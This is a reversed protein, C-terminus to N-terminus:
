PAGSQAEASGTDDPDDADPGNADPGDAADDIDERYTAILREAESISGVPVGEALRLRLRLPLEGTALETEEVVWHLPLGAVSQPLGRFIAVTGDDDGVFYTRQLLLFAGAALVGGLLLAALVVLLIRRGRRAAPPSPAVEAGQPAGLEGLTPAWDRGTEELTRIPVAEEADHAGAGPLAPAPEAEPAPAEEVVTSTRASEGAAQQEGGARDGDAGGPAAASTDLEETREPSISVARVGPLPGDRADRPDGHARLLIVTINDPGGAANAAAVLAQCAADGDEFSALTRAITHDDVPGTLGDSCLLVQDGPQLDLPPLSDVEVEQEIGIARTIVSRQPHSEAAERSLRGEQILQEVLTHDVTLQTLHQGARLLYARSDGVHALHLLGARLLGATLTTGMGRFSPEQSAKEVVTANAEVIAEALAQQATDTSDFQGGDLARLPELATDSAVEGAQHGGMGDAVAFVTDGAFLSDENSDRVLGVDSASFVAVHEANM